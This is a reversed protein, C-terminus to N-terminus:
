LSKVPHGFRPWFTKGAAPLGLCEGLFTSLSSFHLLSMGAELVAKSHMQLRGRDGKSRGQCRGMM